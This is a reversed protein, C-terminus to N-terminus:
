SVFIHAILLYFQLFSAFYHRYDTRHGACYRTKDIGICDNFINFYSYIINNLVCVETKSDGEAKCELEVAKKGDNPEPKWDYIQLDPCYLLICTHHM